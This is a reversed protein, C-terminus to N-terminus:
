NMRHHAKYYRHSTGWQLKPIYLQNVKFARLNSIIIRRRGKPNLCLDATQVLWLKRTSCKSTSHLYHAKRLAILQITLIYYLSVKDSFIKDMNNMNLSVHIIHIQKLVTEFYLTKSIFYFYKNEFYLTKSIFYSNNIKM